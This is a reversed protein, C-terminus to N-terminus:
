PTTLRARRLQLSALLGIAAMAAMALYSAGGISPYLAAAATMAAVTGLTAVLAYLAQATASRDPPAIEALAHMAGLHAAGFTLGHLMQLPMLAALPPDLAMLTWRVLALVAACVLLGTAGVQRLADKSWWFLALETVLGIAWLAGFWHAAIGSAQWHLTGFAYFMGHAGQLTGAALLLWLMAPMAVLSRADALTLRKRAHDNLTKPDNAPLGLAAACTAAAGLIMLWIVVGNGYHSALAGGALNAVVFAASGWLRMRGYDHGANHVGAMAISEVLPSMTNAFAILVLATLAFAFGTTRALLLWALLGLISLGISLARHIHLRDAQFGVAPAIFSRILPPITSLAGIEGVTFGRGELWVPLYPTSIGIVFYMAAFTLAIRVQPSPERLHDAAPPEVM